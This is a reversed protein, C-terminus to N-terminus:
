RCRATSAASRACCCTTPTTTPPRGATPAALLEDEHHWPGILLVDRVIIWGTPTGWSTELVMTGPLYRRAPPCRCTPRASASAAARPPRPDRRLREALGHAAPVDVRRQREARGAGDDRLRVPVRLRRHTSLALPHLHHGADAARCAPYRPADRRGDDRPVTTAARVALHRIVVDDRQLGKGSATHVLLRAPTPLDTPRAPRRPNPWPHLTACGPSSAGSFVHRRAVFASM